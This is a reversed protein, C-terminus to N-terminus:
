SDWEAGIPVLGLARKVMNKVRVNPFRPAAPTVDVYEPFAELVAEVTGRSRCIGAHCHVVINKGRNKTVFEAIEKGQEKTVCKSLWDPGMFNEMLLVWKPDNSKESGTDIDMFKLRIVDEFLPSLNADDADVGTISVIVTNPPPTFREAFDHSTNEIWPTL